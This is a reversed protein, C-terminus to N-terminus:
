GPPPLRLTQGVFLLDPNTPDALEARNADVLRQWYPAV